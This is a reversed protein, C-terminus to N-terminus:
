PNVAKEQVTRKVSKEEERLERSNEDGTKPPPPPGALIVYRKMPNSFVTEVGLPGVKFHFGRDDVVICVFTIFM